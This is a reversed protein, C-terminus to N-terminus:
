RSIDHELEEQNENVFIGGPVGSREFRQQKLSKLQIM